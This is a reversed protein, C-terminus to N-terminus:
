VLVEMDVTNVSGRATTGMIYVQLYDTGANVYVVTASGNGSLANNLALQLAAAGDATVPWSGTTTVGDLVFETVTTTIDDVAVLGINAVDPCTIQFLPTFGWIRSPHVYQNAADNEYTIEYGNESVTLLVLDQTPHVGAATLGKLLIVITDGAEALEGPNTTQNKGVPESFRHRFIDDAM